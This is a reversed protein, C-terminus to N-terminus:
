YRIRPDIVAYLVDVALNAGVYMLTYLITLASLVPFDNNYVSTIALRGMGPWAFVSEVVVTGSMFTVMLLGFHTLPAIMSNRFAHKWVVRIRPVGKARAYTVYASDLVELMSSRVLRLTSASAAWGLAISPLILHSPGGKQSTPLWGLAVAFVIVLMIGVWFVPLAQGFLAFTRGIIDWVSGRSVASLIGLPVGISIAWVLSVGALQVTNPLRKRIASWASSKEVLSDGFDGRAANWAWTLFQVPLPRDLGMERGWSEYQEETVYVGESLFLERPDGKARSLSFIFVGILLVLATAYALRRLM